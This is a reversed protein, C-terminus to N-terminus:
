GRVIENFPMASALGKRLSRQMVSANNLVGVRIETM